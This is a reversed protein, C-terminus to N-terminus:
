DQNGTFQWSSMVKEVSTSFQRIIESSEIVRNGKKHGLSWARMVFRAASTPLLLVFCVGLKRVVVYLRVPILVM